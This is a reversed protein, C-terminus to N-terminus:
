DCTEQAYWDNEQCKIWASEKVNITRSEGDKKLTLRWVDGQHWKTMVRGAAPSKQPGAAKNARGEPTSGCAGVTLALGLTVGVLSGFIRGDTITRSLKM